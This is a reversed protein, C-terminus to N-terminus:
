YITHSAIIEEERIPLHLASYIRSHIASLQVNRSPDPNGTLAYSIIRNYDEEANDIETRLQPASSGPTMTRLLRFAEKLRGGSVEAEM